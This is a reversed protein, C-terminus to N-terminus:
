QTGVFYSLHLAEASGEPPRRAAAASTAPLPLPLDVGGDVFSWMLWQPVGSAM